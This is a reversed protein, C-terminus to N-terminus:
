PKGRQLPWWGWGMVSGASHLERDGLSYSVWSEMVAPRAPGAKQWRREGEVVGIVSISPWRM